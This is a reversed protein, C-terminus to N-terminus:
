LSEYMMTKEYMSCIIRGGRNKRLERWMSFGLLISYEWQKTTCSKIEVLHRTLLKITRLLQYDVADIGEFFNHNRAYEFVLISIAEDIVNARGGDEM